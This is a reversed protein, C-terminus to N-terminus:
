FSTAFRPQVLNMIHETKGGAESNGSVPLFRLCKIKTIFLHIYIWVWTRIIRLSRMVEHVYIEPLIKDRQATFKNLTDSVQKKKVILNM